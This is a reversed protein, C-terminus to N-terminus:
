DYFIWTLGFRMNRAKQPYLPTTFYNNGTFSLGHLLNKYSFFIRTRKIKIALFVDLFPFGGVSYDDQLHFVSTTPMYANAQYKTTYYADFGVDAVLAGKFLSQKWYNSTYLSALPLRLVDGATAHQVLIKNDSNFGTLEFHRSFNASFVMLNQDYLQPLAQQDWYIYNTMNTIGLRIDTERDKSSIFAEGRIRFM